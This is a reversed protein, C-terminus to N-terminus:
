GDCGGPLLSRSVWLVLGSGFWVSGTNVFVSKLDTLCLWTHLAFPDACICVAGSAGALSSVQLCCCSSSAIWM